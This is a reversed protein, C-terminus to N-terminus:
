LAYGATARTIAAGFQAAEARGTPTQLYGYAPDSKIRQTVEYDTMPRFEKAEADYHQLFRSYRPDSWDITDPNVGLLSAIRQAYPDTLQRITQGADLAKVIAENGKYAGKALGILYVRFDDDTRTGALIQQTWQQLAPDSVPVNYQSALAKLGAVTTQGSGPKDTPALTFKTAIAEQVQEPAWGNRNLNLAYTRITGADLAIGIQQALRRIQWEAAVIRAQASAPDSIKLADWSRQQESTAKWWKTASIAARLKAGDWQERAARMLIPGLEPHSLWPAVDPFNRRVYDRLAADSVPPTPSSVPQVTM